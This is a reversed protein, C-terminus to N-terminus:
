RATNRVACGQSTSHNSRANVASLAANSIDHRVRWVEHMQVCQEYTKGQVRLTSFLAFACVFILIAACVSLMDSHFWDDLLRMSAYAFFASAIVLLLQWFRRKMTHRRYEGRSERLACDCMEYVSKIEAEDLFRLTFPLEYLTRSHREWDTKRVRKELAM